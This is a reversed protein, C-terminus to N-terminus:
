KALILWRGLHSPKKKKISVKITVAECVMFTATKAVKKFIRTVIPFCVSIFHVWVRSNGSNYRELVIENQLVSVKQRDFLLGTRM